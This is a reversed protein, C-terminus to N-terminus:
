ESARLGSVIQNLEIIHGDPDVLMSAMVLLSVDIDRDILTARRLHIAHLPYADGAGLLSPASSAAPPTGPEPTAACGACFLFAALLGAASNRM